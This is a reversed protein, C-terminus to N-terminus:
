SSIKDWSQVRLAALERSNVIALGNMTVQNIVEHCDHRAMVSASRVAEPSLRGGVSGEAM